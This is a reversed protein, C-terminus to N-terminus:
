TAAPDTPRGAEDCPPELHAFRRRLRIASFFAIAAAAVLLSIVLALAVSVVAPGLCISGRFRSPGGEDSPRAQVLM